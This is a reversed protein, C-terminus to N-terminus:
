SDDSRTRITDAAHIIVKDAHCRIDGTRAPLRALHGFRGRRTGRVVGLGSNGVTKGLRQQGHAVRGSWSAEDQLLHGRWSSQGGVRRRQGGLRDLRVGVDGYGGSLEDDQVIGGPLLGPVPVESEDDHHAGAEVLLDTGIGQESGCCPGPEGISQVAGARSVPREDSRHGPDEGLGEASELEVVGARM